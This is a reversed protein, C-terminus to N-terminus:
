FFCFKKRDGILIFEYFKTQKLWIHFIPLISVSHSFKQFYLSSFFRWRIFLWSFPCCVMALHQLYSSILHINASFTFNFSISDVANYNWDSRFYCSQTFSVHTRINKKYANSTSFWLCKCKPPPAELTTSTFIYICIYATINILKVNPNWKNPAHMRMKHKSRVGHISVHEM